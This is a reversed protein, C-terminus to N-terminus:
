VSRSDQITICFGGSRDRYRGCVVLRVEVGGVGGVCVGSVGGCM